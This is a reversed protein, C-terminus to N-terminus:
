QPAMYLFQRKEVCDILLCCQYDKSLRRPKKHGFPQTSACNRLPHCKGGRGAQCAFLLVQGRSKRSGPKQATRDPPPHAPPTPCAASATLLLVPTPSLQHSSLRAVFFQGFHKTSIRPTKHGLHAPPFRCRAVYRFSPPPFDRFGILRSGYLGAQSRSPRAPTALKEWSSCAFPNKTTM